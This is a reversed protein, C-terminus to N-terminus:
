TLLTILIGAATASGLVGAVNPGMAHMLLDNQSDAEKAMDQVVRSAMPVASTGAAGIMPNIQEETLANMMKAMLLGSAIAVVFAVVQGLLGTYQAVLESLSDPIPDSGGAQLVPLRMSDLM